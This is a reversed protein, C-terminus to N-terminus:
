RDDLESGCDPCFELTPLDYEALAAGCHPCYAPSEITGEPETGAGSEPGSDPAAASPPDADGGSPPAPDDNPRSEAATAGGGVHRDPEGRAVRGTGGAAQRGNAARRERGARERSASRDDPPADEDTPGPDGSRSPGSAAGPDSGDAPAADDGDDGGVLYWGAFLVLLAAGAAGLLLPANELDFPSGDHAAAAAATTNGDGDDDGSGDTTAARVQVDRVQMAKAGDDDTVQLEVAREGPEEFAHEVTAGTAEYSGDGDLDWEYREITGDPDSSGSGDLTVAEGVTAETPADVSAEPARNPPVVDVTVSRRTETDGSAARVTFEYADTPAAEDVAVVYTATVTGGAPVPDTWFVSNRNAAVSGNPSRIEAVTLSDPVGEVRVGMADSPRDGDNTVAVTVEVTGGPTTEGPDSVSLAIPVTAAAAPVALLLAVAVVAFARRM